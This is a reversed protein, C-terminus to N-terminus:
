LGMKQRYARKMAADNTTLMEGSEYYEDALICYNCVVEYEITVGKFVTMDTLKVILVEHEEMCCTCLRKEKNIINM